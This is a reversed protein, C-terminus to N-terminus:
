CLVLLDHKIHMQHFKMRLGYLLSQSQKLIKRLFLIEDSAHKIRDHEYNQESFFIIQATFISSTVTLNSEHTGRGKRTQM